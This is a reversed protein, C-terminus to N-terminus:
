LQVVTCAGEQPHVPSLHKTVVVCCLNILL